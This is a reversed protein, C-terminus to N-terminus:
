DDKILRVDKEARSKNGAEDVVKIELRLDVPPGHCLIRRRKAGHPKLYFRVRNYPRVIEETDRDLSKQGRFLVMTCSVPREDTGCTAQVGRGRMTEDFEQRERARIFVEPPTTDPEGPEGAVAVRGAYLGASGANAPGVAFAIVVGVSVALSLWGIRAGRRM